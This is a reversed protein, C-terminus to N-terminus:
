IKGEAYDNQRYPQRKQFLVLRKRLVSSLETAGQKLDLEIAKEVIAAAKDYKGIEAYATALADLALPQDYRTLRCLKEALLIAEEGNRLNKDEYSALIWSLKYLAYITNPNAKLAKRFHRIANEINGQNLYIEGLNYYAGAFDSRIRLTENFHFIAQKDKKQRALVVGLNNHTMASNPQFKLAKEYSRIAAYLDGQQEMAVGIEYYAGAHDPKARIVMSFQEIAQDINGRDRLVVGLNLRAVALDPKIRLAERFHRTAEDSKGKSLLAEGLKSHVISNDKTIDLAHAFLVVSSVWYRNQLWSITALFVLLTFATSAFVMKRFRWRALLDPIGWAM